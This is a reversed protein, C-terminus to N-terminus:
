QVAFILVFGITSVLLAAKGLWPWTRRFAILTMPLLVLYSLGLAGDQSELFRSTHFTADYLSRWNVGQRFRPDLLPELAFQPSRFIQNLFPFLPNGTRIWANLYPHIGFALFLGTCAARARWDPGISAILLVMVPVILSLAGFKSALAAGCLVAAAATWRTDHQERGVATALLAGTVMLALYNEIFLSGTVLQVLPTSLFVATLLLATRDSIWRRVTSFLLGTVTLLLLPNLLRAAFEGGLLYAHTYCWDGGMPMVSWSFRDVSFWWLHAQRVSEPIVLHMALGDASVEPKLAVIWHTLAIFGNLALLASTRRDSSGHSLTRWIEAASALTLGPRLILPFATLLAYTLPYNWPLAVIAFIVFQQLALGLTTELLPHSTESRLIVRGLVRASFMVALASFPAVPGASVIALLLAGPTFLGPLIAPKLAVILAALTSYVAFFILFRRLGDAQWINAQALLGTVWLGYALVGCLAVFCLRAVTM